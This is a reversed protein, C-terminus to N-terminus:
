EPGSQENSHKEPDYPYAKVGDEGYVIWYDGKRVKKPAGPKSIRVGYYGPGNSYAKFEFPRNGRRNKEKTPM